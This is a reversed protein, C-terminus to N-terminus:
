GSVVRSGTRAIERFANGLFVGHESQRGPLGHVQGGGKGSVQCPWPKRRAAPYRLGSRDVGARWPHVAGVGLMRRHAGRHRSAM